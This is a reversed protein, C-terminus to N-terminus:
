LLGLMENHAQEQLFILVKIWEKIEAAKMKVQDLEVSSGKSSLNKQFEM